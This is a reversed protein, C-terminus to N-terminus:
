PAGQEALANRVARRLEDADYPKRIYDVAGLEDLESQVVNMGYASVIIVPIGPVIGEDRLTRLVDLGSGDPLGVDLLTVAYRESRLKALAEACTSATDVTFGDPALMFESLLRIDEEDDVVLITRSSSM